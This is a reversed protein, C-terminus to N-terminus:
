PRGRMSSSGSAVAALSFAANRKEGHLLLLWLKHDRSGSEVMKKPDM